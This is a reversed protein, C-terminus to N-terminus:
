DHVAKGAYDNATVFAPRAAGMGKRQSHAGEKSPPLLGQHGPDPTETKHCSVRFNLGM